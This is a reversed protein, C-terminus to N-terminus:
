HDKVIDDEKLNKIYSIFANRAENAEEFTDTLLINDFITGSNMQYLEFAVGGIPGFVNLNEDSKLKLGFDNELSGEVVTIDDVAVEYTKDNKLAFRYIHYNNLVLNKKSSKEDSPNLFPDFDKKWQYKKGNVILEIEIKKKGGCVDPGFRILYPTNSDFNKQDFNKPMVKITGGGCGQISPFFVSYQIILNEIDDFDKSLESNSLGYFRNDATTRIAECVFDNGNEM